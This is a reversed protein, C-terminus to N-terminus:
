PQSRSRTLALILLATPVLIWLQFVAATRAQRGLNVDALEQNLRNDRCLWIAWLALPLYNVAVGLFWLAPLIGVLGATTALLWIGVGVLVPVAFLFECLVIRRRWATGAAGHLDLAVLRKLTMM